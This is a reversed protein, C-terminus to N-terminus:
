ELLISVYSVETIETAEVELGTKSSEDSDVADGRSREAVSGNLLDTQNQEPLDSTQSELTSVLFVM